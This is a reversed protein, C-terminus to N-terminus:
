KARPHAQNYMRKLEEFTTHTYIETTSLNEHGLLEKVSQLDAQNNLMATAFSHRLVHPSRKKVTTVYGLKENVVEYVKGTSIRRGDKLNQFVPNMGTVERGEEALTKRYDRLAESMERGFPVIRQKNRKGTVKLQGEDLDVDKWNLGVLESLRIGTSYFTLLILRDRQGELNDAFYDGDLLKDMESERVFTPLTKEKKPGQLAHVPDAEVLSRQLLYKYFTKLASLKKCVTRPTNGEEMLEVMWERVLDKDATAWTLSEDKSALFQEFQELCTRYTTITQQSRNCESELYTLFTDIWM